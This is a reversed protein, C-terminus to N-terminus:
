NWFKEFSISKSLILKLFLFNSILSGSFYECSSFLLHEAQLYIVPYSHMHRNHSNWPQLWQLSPSMSVWMMRLCPSMPAVMFTCFPVTSYKDPSLFTIAPLIYSFRQPPESSFLWSQSFKARLEVRLSSIYLFSSRSSTGVLFTM